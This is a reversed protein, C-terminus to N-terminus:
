NDRQKNQTIVHKVEDISKKIEAVTKDTSLVHRQVAQSLSDDRLSNVYRDNDISQVIKAIETKIDGMGQIYNININGVREYTTWQFAVVIIALTVVGGITAYFLKNPVKSKMDSELIDIDNIRIKM